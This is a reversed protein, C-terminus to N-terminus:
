LDASIWQCWYCHAQDRYAWWYMPQVSLHRVDAAMEPITEM